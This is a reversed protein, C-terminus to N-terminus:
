LFVARVSVQTSSATTGPKYVDLKNGVLQWGVNQGTSGWLCNIYQSSDITCILRTGQASTAYADTTLLVYSASGVNVSYFAYDGSAIGSTDIINGTSSVYGFTDAATVDSTFGIFYYSGGAAVAQGNIATNSQQNTYDIVLRFARTAAAAAVTTTTMTQSVTLTSTTTTSLSTVPTSTSYVSSVLTTPSAVLTTTSTPSFVCASTARKANVVQTAIDITTTAQATATVITTFTGATNILTTTSYSTSIAPTVTSVGYSTCVGNYAAGVKAYGNSYGITYHHGQSDYQGVNTAYSPSWAYTYYTCTFVGNLGDKYLIYAM